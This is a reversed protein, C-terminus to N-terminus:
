EYQLAVAVSSRIASEAPALAAALSAALILPVVLAVLSWPYVYDLSMGGFDRDFMKLQYFLNIAGLGLGLITGLAGVALAELWLTNRLQARLGGIARMMALDRRRDVISIASTNAVGVIAVLVAIAVQLYTLRFWNYALNM